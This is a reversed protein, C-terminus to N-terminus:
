KAEVLMDKLHKAEETSANLTKDTFIGTFKKSDNKTAYNRKMYDIYGVYDLTQEQIEKAIEKATEQDIGEVLRDSSTDNVVVAEKRKTYDVFKAYPTTYDWMVTVAPSKSM